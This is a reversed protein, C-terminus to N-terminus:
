LVKRHNMVHKEFYSFNRKIKEELEDSTIIKELELGAKPHRKYIHIEKM